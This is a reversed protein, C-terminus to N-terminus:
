LLGFLLSTRKAYEKSAKVLQEKPVLTRTIKQTVAEELGKFDDGIPSLFCSLYHMDFLWQVLLDQLQQDDTSTDEEKQSAEETGEKEGDVEKEPPELRKALADKWSSSVQSSVHQKLVAVATPSWLDGGADGMSKSLNRLFRLIGPSPSTPLEEGETGEWLSRGVVTKRALYSTGFEGLPTAVVTSALVEHLSPVVGLGFAPPFRVEMTAGEVAGDVAPLRARVDRLLRLLYMAVQGRKEGKEQKKWLLSVHDDLNKFAKTLTVKLHDHLMQPDERGLMAQREEITEEDEVMDDADNDWRQRRLGEVVRGVDGMVHYWSTYCNVAKSVADNRGYLRAVVDKTFQSAGNGLDMDVSDVDWLSEATGERWTDLAAAVESGVLRLKNVKQELVKLMHGNVTERIKNLVISPDIGRAKGGEAIWLGLVRTRMEVISEFDTMGELTKQLGQLLVQGGQKAWSALMERAQPGDLDDHRIFPTYYQIGDGCWREYMDLRLGEIARLSEDALLRGKKLGLLAETLKHPVIAQVDVLTRTYLEMCRLVDGKKKKKKQGEQQELASAMAEGRVRLFHRLVDRAGSSTALSYASFATTLVGRSGEKDEKGPQPVHKLVRNIARMLKSHLTQLNKKAGEGASNGSKTLNQSLLRGLVWIEAAVILRDGRM